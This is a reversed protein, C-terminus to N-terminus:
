ATCRPLINEALYRAIQYPVVDAESGLGYGLLATGMLAATATATTTLMFIGVSAVGLMVMAVYPAFYRDLLFGTTLRLSRRTQAL